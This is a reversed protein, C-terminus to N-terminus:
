TGRGGERKGAEIAQNITGHGRRKVVAKEGQVTQEICLGL